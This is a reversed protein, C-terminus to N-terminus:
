LGDWTEWSPSRNHSAFHRRWLRSPSSLTLQAGTIPSPKCTTTKALNNRVSSRGLWKKNKNEWQKTKTKWRPYPTSRENPNNLTCKRRWNLKKSSMRLKLRLHSRMGADYPHEQMNRPEENQSSSRTECLLAFVSSFLAVRHVRVGIGGPICPYICFFFCGGM